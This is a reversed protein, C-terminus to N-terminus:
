GRVANNIWDLGISTKPPLGHIDIIFSARGARVFYRATGSLPPRMCFTETGRYVHASRSAYVIGPRYSAYTHSSPQSGRGASGPSRPLGGSSHGTTCATLALVAMCAALPHFGRRPM